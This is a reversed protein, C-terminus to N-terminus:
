SLVCGGMQDQHLAERPLTLLKAQAPHRLLSIRSNNCLTVLPYFILPRSHETLLGVGYVYVRAHYSRQGNGLRSPAGGPQLRGDAM